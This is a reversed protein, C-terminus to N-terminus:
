YPGVYPGWANPGTGYRVDRGDFYPTYNTTNWDPPQNGPHQEGYCLSYYLEVPNPHYCQTKIWDQKLPSQFSTSLAPTQASATAATGVGVGLVAAVATAVGAVTISFRQSLSLKHNM